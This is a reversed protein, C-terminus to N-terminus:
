SLGLDGGDRISSDDSAYKDAQRIQDTVKQRAAQFTENDLDTKEAISLSVAALCISRIEDGSMGALEKGLVFDSVEAEDPLYLRACEVAFEDGLHGIKVPRDVRGPRKLIRDEIDEPHNTAMVIACGNQNAPADVGDLVNLVQSSARDKPGTPGPSFAQEADEVFIIVPTNDSAARKQVAAMARVDTVFVASQDSTRAIEQMLTTKGTGPPGILMWKKTGDQGMRTYHEPNDFFQEIESIVVERKPHITPVQSLSGIEELSLTGDKKVSGRYVGGSLGTTRHVSRARLRTWGELDEPRGVIVNLSIAGNQTKLPARAFVISRGEGDAGFRVSFM